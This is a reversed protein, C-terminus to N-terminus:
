SVGWWGKKKKLAQMSTYTLDSVRLLEKIKMKSSDKITGYLVSWRLTEVDSLIYSYLIIKLLRKPLWSSKLIKHVMLLGKFLRCLIYALFKLPEKDTQPASKIDFRGVSHNEILFPKM